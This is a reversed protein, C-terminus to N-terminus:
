GRLGSPKEYYVVLCRNAYPHFVVPLLAADGVSDSFHFLSLSLSLSLCVSLLLCLSVSLSLPVCLSLLPSPTPFSLSFSVSLCVSLRAPLCLFLYASPSLFVLPNSPYVTTFPVNHCLLLGVILQQKCQYTNVSSSVRCRHSYGGMRPM